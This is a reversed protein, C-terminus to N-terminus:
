LKFVKNKIIFVYRTLLWVSISINCCLLISFVFSSVNGIVILSAFLFLILFIEALSAARSLKSPTIFFNYRLKLWVGGLLLIIEKMLLFWVAMKQLFTGAVIVLLAYLTSMILCKDAIPDLLQGLSSQQNFRRAVFGDVLDTFAAIIFFLAAVTWAQLHIYYVVFPTLFIRVLTICSAFTIM